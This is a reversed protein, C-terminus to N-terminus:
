KNQFFFESNKKSLNILYVVGYCLSYIEIDNLLKFVRINIQVDVYLVMSSRKGNSNFKAGGVAVNIINHRDRICM